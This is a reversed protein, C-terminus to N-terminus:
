QRIEGMVLSVIKDLNAFCVPRAGEAEFLKNLGDRIRQEIMEPKGPEVTETNLKELASCLSAVGDTWTESHSIGDKRAEVTFARTGEFPPFAVSWGRLIMGRIALQIVQGDSM